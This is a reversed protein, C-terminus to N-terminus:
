LSIQCFTAYHVTPEQKYGVIKTPSGEDARGEQDSEQRHDSMGTVPMLAWGSKVKTM